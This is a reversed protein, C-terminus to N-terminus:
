AMTDKGETSFTKKIKKVKFFFNQVYLSIHCRKKKKLELLNLEICSILFLTPLLCNSRFQNSVLDSGFCLHCLSFNIRFIFFLFVLFLLIVQNISVLESVM